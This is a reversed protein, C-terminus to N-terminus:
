SWGRPPRLAAQRRLQALAEIADEAVSALVRELQEDSTRAGAWAEHPKVPGTRAAEVLQGLDGLHQTLRALLLEAQFPTEEVRVGDAETQAIRRDIEALADQVYKQRAM